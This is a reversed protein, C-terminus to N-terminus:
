VDRDRYNTFEVLPVPNDKSGFPVNEKGEPVADLDVLGLVAFQSEKGTDMGIGVMRGVEDGDLVVTPCNECFHGADTGMMLTRTGGQHRVEVVYSHHESELESGCEPCRSCGGADEAWHMKRPTSASFKSM